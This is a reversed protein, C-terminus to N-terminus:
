LMSVDFSCDPSPQSSNVKRTSVEEYKGGTEKANYHMMVLLKM